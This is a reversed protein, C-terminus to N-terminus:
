FLFGILPLGIGQVEVEQALHHHDQSGWSPGGKKIANFQHLSTSQEGMSVIPSGSKLMDECTWQWWLPRRAELMIDEHQDVQVQVGCDQHRDGSSTMRWPNYSIKRKVCAWPLVGLGWMPSECLGHTLICVRLPCHKGYWPIVQDRETCRIRKTHQDDQNVRQRLDQDVM